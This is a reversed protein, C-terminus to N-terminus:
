RRWLRNCLCYSPLIKSVPHCHIKNGFEANAHANARPSPSLRIYVADTFRMRAVGFTRRMSGNPGFRHLAMGWLNPNAVLSALPEGRM